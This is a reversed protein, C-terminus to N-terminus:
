YNPLCYQIHIYLLEILDPRPLRSPSTQWIKSRHQAKCKVRNYKFWGLKQSLLVEDFDVTSGVLTNKGEHLQVQVRSWYWFLLWHHCYCYFVDTQRTLHTCQLFPFLVTSKWKYLHKGVNTASQLRHRDGCFQKELKNPWPMLHLLLCCSKFDTVISMQM